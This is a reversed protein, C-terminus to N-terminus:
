RGKRLEEVLTAAPADLARLDTGKARIV